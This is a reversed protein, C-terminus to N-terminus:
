QGSYDSSAVNANSCNDATNFALGSRPRIQAEYGVPLQIYLGTPILRYEGPELIIPAENAACLDMGASQETAYFPLANGSKNVVPIEIMQM